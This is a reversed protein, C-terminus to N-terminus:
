PVHEDVLTSGVARSRPLYPTSLTTYRMLKIEKLFEQLVFEDMMGINMQLEKMAVVQEPASGAPRYTARHVIGFAGAGLRKTIQLESFPLRKIEPDSLIGLCM